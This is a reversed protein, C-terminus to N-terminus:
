GKMAALQNNLALMAADFVAQADTTTHTGQIGQVGKATMRWTRLFEILGEAKASEGLILDAEEKATIGHSQAGTVVALPPEGSYGNDRWSKADSANRQYESSLYVSNKIVSDGVEIARADIKDCLFVKLAALEQAKIEADLAVNVVWEKGDWTYAANPREPLYGDNQAYESSWVPADNSLLELAFVGNSEDYDALKKIILGTKGSSQATFFAGFCAEGVEFLGEPQPSPTWYDIFAHSGDNKSYFKM